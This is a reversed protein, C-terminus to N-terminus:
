VERVLGSAQGADVHRLRDRKEEAQTVGAVAAPEVVLHGGALAGVARGALTGLREEEAEEAVDVDAGAEALGGGAAHGDESAARARSASRHSRPRPRAMELGDRLGDQPRGAGVPAPRRVRRGRGRCVPGTSFTPSVPPIPEPLLATAA